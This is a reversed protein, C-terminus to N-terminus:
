VNIARWIKLSCSAAHVSIVHDVMLAHVILQTTLFSMTPKTSAECFESESLYEIDNRIM